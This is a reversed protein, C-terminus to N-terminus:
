QPCTNTPVRAEDPDRAHSRVECRRGPKCKARPLRNDGVMEFMLLAEPRGVEEFRMPNAPGDVDDQLTVTCREAHEFHVAARLALEAVSVDGEQLTRGVDEAHGDLTLTILQALRQLVLLHQDVLDIM